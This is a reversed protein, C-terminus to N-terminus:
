PTNSVVLPPLPKHPTAQVERIVLPGPAPPTPPKLYRVGVKQVYVLKDPNDRYIIEPDPDYNLPMHSLDADTTTASPLNIYEHLHPDSKTRTKLENADTDDFSVRHRTRHRDITRSEQTCRPPDAIRNFKYRRDDSSKSRQMRSAEEQEQRYKDPFLRAFASRPGGVLNVRRIPSRELHTTTMEDISSNFEKNLTTTTTTTLTQEYVDPVNVSPADYNYYQGLRRRENSHIDNNHHM